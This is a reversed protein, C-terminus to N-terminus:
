SAIERTHGAHPMAKQVEPSFKAMDFNKGAGINLKAFRDLLDKESPNTPCFQLVFNVYPFLAPTALMGDAPKPWNVGPAANPASQGLFKSLPKAKYGAQIKKVNGSDAPNFLQTRFLLYAFETESNLVAEVGKPTEGKWGPGTVMFVGGDNGFSRTGLYAFNFTYLDILQGTYYRNKEIKPMTVIIPEARLDMWLFSYPTDSNPTDVFKDDPTAVGSSNALVNFPARYDSSSSDIAQKYMTQYNSAIPFGYIYADKAIRRAEEPTLGSQSQQQAPNCAILGLAVFVFSLLLGRGRNRV